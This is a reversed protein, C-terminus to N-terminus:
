LAMVSWGRGQCIVLGTDTSVDIGWFVRQLLAMGEPPYFVILLPLLPSLISPSVNPESLAPHYHYTFLCYSIFILFALQASLSRPLSVSRVLDSSFTRTSPTVPLWFFPFSPPYSLHILHPFSPTILSSKIARTSSLGSILYCSFLPCFPLLTTITFFTIFSALVSLMLFKPSFSLRFGNWVFPSFMLLSNSQLHTWIVHFPLNSFNHTTSSCLLFHSLFPVIYPAVVACEEIIISCQLPPCAALLNWHWNM